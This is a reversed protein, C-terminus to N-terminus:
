KSEEEEDDPINMWDVGKDEFAQVLDAIHKQLTNRHMGSAKALDVIHVEVGTFRPKGM